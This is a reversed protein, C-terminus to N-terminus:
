GGALAETVDADEGPIPQRQRRVTVEYDGRPRREQAFRLRHPRGPAATRARYRPSAPGGTAAGGGTAPGRKAADAFVYRYVGRGQTAAILTDKEQVTARPKLELSLVPATPLKSGLQEYRGGDTDRSVFVGLNTAVILQGNRVLTFNAPIDPLDGSVDHFHEGADTSKYVNGGGLDADEGLVGPPLWRRSYGGLTAYVTRPDSPDIQISTIYRSPLGDAAAIHWGSASGAGGVAGGTPSVNTAVGNAFPRTSLADCYGCYAVYSAAKGAVTDGPLSLSITRLPSM